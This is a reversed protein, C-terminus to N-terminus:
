SLTRRERWEGLFLAGTLALAVGLGVYFFAIFWDPALGSLRLGAGLAIMFAIMIYGKGDMFRTVAVRQERMADVRRAHKDSYPRFIRVFFVFFTLASGVAMLVFPLVDTAAVTYAQVGVIAVNIGALLWFVGAIALLTSKKVQPM